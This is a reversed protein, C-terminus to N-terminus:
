VERRHKRFSFRISPKFNLLISVLFVLLGILLLIFINQTSMLLPVSGAPLEIDFITPYGYDISGNFSFYNGFMIGGGGEDTM